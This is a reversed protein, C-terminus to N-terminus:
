FTTVAPCVCSATVTVNRRYQCGFEDTVTFSYVFSGATPFPGLTIDNALQNGVCPGPSPCAPGPNNVVTNTTTQAPVAPGSGSTSWTATALDPTITQLSGYLFNSFNVVM